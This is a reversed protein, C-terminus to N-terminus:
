HDGLTVIYLYNFQIAAIHDPIFNWIKDGHHYSVSFFFIGLDLDLFQQPFIIFLSGPSASQIMWWSCGLSEGLKVQVGPKAAACSYSGTIGWSARLGMLKFPSHIMGWDRLSGTHRREGHEQKHKNVKSGLSILQGCCNWLCWKHFHSCAGQSLTNM